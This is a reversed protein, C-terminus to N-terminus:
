QQECPVQRQIPTTCIVCTTTTTFLQRYTCLHNWLPWKATKHQVEQIHFAVYAGPWCWMWHCCTGCAPRANLSSARRKAQQLGAGQTKGCGNGGWTRTQSETLRFVRWTRPGPGNSRATLQTPNELDTLLVQGEGEGRCALEGEARPCLLAQEPPALPRLEGRPVLKPAGCSLGPFGKGGQTPSAWGPPSPCLPPPPPVSRGAKMGLRRCPVPTSLAPCQWARDTVRGLWPPMRGLRPHLSLGQKPLM